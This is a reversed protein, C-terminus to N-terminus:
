LEVRNRERQGDKEYVFAVFVTTADEESEPERSYEIRYDIM